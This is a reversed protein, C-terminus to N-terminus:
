SIFLLIMHIRMIGKRGLLFTSLDERKEKEYRNVYTRKIYDKWENYSKLKLEKRGIECYIKYEKYMDLGYPLEMKYKQYAIDSLIARLLFTLVIWLIGIVIIGLVMIEEQGLQRAAITGICMFVFVIVLVSFLVKKRNKM